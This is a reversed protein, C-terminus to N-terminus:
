IRVKIGAFITTGPMPFGKNIEYEQNLINEARTFLEVVKTPAYRIQANWLCFSETASNASIDTYLHSIYQLGSDLHWNKLRYSANVYMKHKPAGLINYKMDLFSYNASFRFSSTVEYSAIIEVGKNNIKGTNINLPKGNEISTQIINSGNIYFLSLGIRLKRDILEQNVSIEYNMLEEPLLNPNQPPFMYMERITPNRFGKGVTAKFQTSAFPTYNIGFQPIWESGNKDHNDIRVGASLMLRNKLISQQINLYGAISNHHIDIIKKKDLNDTMVNYASGGFRQYDIGVTSTNGKFFSHSQNMSVGMMDDTSQFLQNTPDQNNFYGDNIRHKGFNYFLRISGSSKAYRNELSISTVGREIDADNDIIPNSIQGPNSSKTGSINFDTFISWTNNFDYGVKTYLSNQSFEMNERHGESSNHGLVINAFFKDKRFQSALDISLTNNSGYMAQYSQKLGNQYNKKTRINIVGGMANSGYLMSGPGSIVEVSETMSSQYSDALPHGMLGMYQPHGDILILVGSTPSGGVGRISISGASGNSVGYGMIGRQTVFLGPVEESLIPLLSPENRNSIKTQGIITVSMPINNPNVSPASATVLLEDLKISDNIHVREQESAIISSSSIISLHIVLLSVIFKISDM